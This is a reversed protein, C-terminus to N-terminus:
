QDNDSSLILRYDVPSKKGLLVKDMSKKEILLQKHHYLVVGPFLYFYFLRERNWSAQNKTRKHDQLFSKGLNQNNLAQTKAEM